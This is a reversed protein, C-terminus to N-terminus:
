MERKRWIEPAGEEIELPLTWTPEIAGTKKAWDWMKRLNKEFGAPNDTYDLLKVSKKWTCWANKVEGPRDAVHVPKLKSGAVKLVAACAENITYEVRGGVNIVQNKTANISNALAPTFDEIYSFLDSSCM